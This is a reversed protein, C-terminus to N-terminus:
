FFYLSGLGHSLRSKRRVFWLYGGFKLINICLDIEGASYVRWTRDELFIQDICIFCVGM